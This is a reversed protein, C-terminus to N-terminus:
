ICSEDEHWKTIKLLDYIVDLEEVNINKNKWIQLLHDNAFMSLRIFQCLQKEKEVASEPIYGMRKTIFDHLEKSTSKRYEIKSPDINYINNSSHIVKLLEPYCLAIYMYELNGDKSLWKYQCPFYHKLTTRKGRENEKLNNWMGEIMIKIDNFFMKGSLIQGYHEKQNDDASISVAHKLIDSIKSNKYNISIYQLNHEISSLKTENPLSSQFIMTLFDAYQANDCGYFVASYLVKEKEFTKGGGTIKNWNAIIFDHNNNCLATLSSFEKNAKSTDHVIICDIIQKFRDIEAQTNAMTDALSFLLILSLFLRM